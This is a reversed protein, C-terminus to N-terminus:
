GCTVATRPLFRSIGRTLVGTFMQAIVDLVLRPDCATLGAEICGLYLKVMGEFTLDGRNGAQRVGDCGPKVTLRNAHKSSENSAEGRAIDYAASECTTGCELVSNNVTTQSADSSASSWVDPRVRGPECVAAFDSAM